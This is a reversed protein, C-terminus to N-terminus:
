VRGPSPSAALTIHGHVVQYVFGVLMVFVSPPAAGCVGLRSLRRDKAADTGASDGVVYSVGDDDVQAPGACEGEPLVRRAEGSVASVQRLAGSGAESVGAPM